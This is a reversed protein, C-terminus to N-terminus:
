GLVEIRNEVQRVAPVAMAMVQAIQKMHYSPVRGCLVISGNRRQVDVQRLVTYSAETFRRRVEGLAADPSKGARLLSPTARAESLVPRHM